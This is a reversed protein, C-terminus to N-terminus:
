LAASGMRVPTTSMPRASPKVLIPPLADKAHDHLIYTAIEVNKLQPM